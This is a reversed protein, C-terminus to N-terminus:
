KADSPEPLGPARGTLAQLSQFDGLAAYHTADAAQQTNLFTVMAQLVDLNTVLGREFNRTEAKYNKGSLDAADM